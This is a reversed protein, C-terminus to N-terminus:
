FVTFPHLLWTALATKHRLIKKFVWKNRVLCKWWPFSKNLSSNVFTCIAWSDLYVNASQVVTSHFISISTDSLPRWIRWMAQKGEEVPDNLHLYFYLPWPWDYIKINHFMELAPWCSNFVPWFVCFAISFVAICCSGVDGCNLNSPLHIKYCCEKDIMSVWFGLCIAPLRPTM